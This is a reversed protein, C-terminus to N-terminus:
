KSSISCRMTMKMTIAITRMTIMKMTIMTMIEKTTKIKMKRKILSDYREELQKLERKLACYSDCYDQAHENISRLCELWYNLM